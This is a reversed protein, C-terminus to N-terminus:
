EDKSGENVIEENAEVNRGSGIKGRYVESDKLREREAEVVEGNIVFLITSSWSNIRTPLTKDM